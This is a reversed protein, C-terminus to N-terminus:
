PQKSHSKDRTENHALRRGQLFMAYPGTFIDVQADHPAIEGCSECYESLVQEPQQKM